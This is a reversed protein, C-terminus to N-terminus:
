ILWLQMEVIEGFIISCMKGKLSKVSVVHFRCGTDICRTHTDDGRCACCDAECIGGGERRAHSRRFFSSTPHSFLTPLCAVCATTTMPGCRRYHICLVCVQACSGYGVSGALYRPKQTVSVRLRAFLHTSHSHPDFLRLTENKTHNLASGEPLFLCLSISLRSSLKLLERGRGGRKQFTEELTVREPDGDLGVELKGM